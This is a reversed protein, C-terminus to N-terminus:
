NSKNIEHTTKFNIEDDKDRNDNIIQQKSYWHSDNLEAEATTPTFLQTDNIDIDYGNNRLKEYDLNNIDMNNQLTTARESYYSTGKGSPNFSIPSQQQQNNNSYYSHNYYNLNYNGSSNPIKTDNSSSAWMSSLPLSITVFFVSLAFFDFKSLSQISYSLIMLISPIILAQSSMILLIHFGDFQKLGLYRRTKIAFLLKLILLLSMFNVSSSFLIKQVDLLRSEFDNLKVISIISQITDYLYLISTSLAILISLSTILYKLNLNNSSKFLTRIQFVLSIEISLILLFQIFNTISYIIQDNQSILLKYFGTFTTSIKAFGGFLYCIYFISHIIILILSIQNMIFVPTKKNKSIIFLSIMTLGCAGIIVSHIICNKLQIHFYNDLDDFTISDNGYISTFNLVQYSPNFDLSITNSM